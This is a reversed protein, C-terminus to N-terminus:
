KTFINILSEGWTWCKKEITDVKILKSIIQLIISDNNQLNKIYYIGSLVKLRVSSINIGSYINIHMDKAIATNLLMAFILILKPCKKIM